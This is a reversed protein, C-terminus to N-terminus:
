CICKFYLVRTRLCHEYMLGHINRLILLLCQLLRIEEGQHIFIVEGKNIHSQTFNLVAEEPAEKFGVMGNIPAEVHYVLEEAPTDADETNLM